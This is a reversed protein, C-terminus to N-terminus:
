LMVAVGVHVHVHVSVVKAYKEGVNSMFRKGDVHFGKENDNSLLAAVSM